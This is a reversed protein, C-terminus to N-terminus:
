LKFIGFLKKDQVEGTLEEEPKWVIEGLSLIFSNVNNLMITKDEEKIATLANITQKIYEFESEALWASSNLGFLVMGFNNDSFVDKMRNLPFKELSEQIVSKLEKGSVKTVIKEAAIEVWQGKEFNMNSAPALDLRGHVIVARQSGTFYNEHEEKTIAITGAPINAHIEDNYFGTVYNNFDTIAHITM